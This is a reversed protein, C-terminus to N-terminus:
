AVFRPLHGGGDGSSNTGRFGFAICYNLRCTMEDSHGTFTSTVFDFLYQEQRTNDKSDHQEGANADRRYEHHNLGDFCHHVAEFIDSLALTVQGGPQIGISSVLHTAQGMPEVDKHFFELTNDGFYSFIGTGHGIGGLSEGLHGLLQGASGGGHGIFGLSHGGGRFTHALVHVRDRRGAFLSCGINVHNGGGGLAHAGCDMFGGLIRFFRPMDGFIGNAFDGM